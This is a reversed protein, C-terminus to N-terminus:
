PQRNPELSVHPSCWGVLCDMVEMVIDEDAEREAERLQQRTREFLGLIATQDQGEAQLIAVLARLDEFPSPGNLANQIRPDVSM